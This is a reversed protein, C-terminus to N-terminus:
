KKSGFRDGWAGTGCIERVNVAFLVLSALWEPAAQFVYFLAKSGTGNLPGSYLSTTHLTMIALHYITIVLLLSIVAGILLVASRRIKPICLYAWISLLQVASIQVFALIISAYRLAQAVTAAAAYAEGGTYIVGAVVGLLIPNWSLVALVACLRRYFTRAKPDDEIDNESSSTASSNESQGVSSIAKGAEGDTQTPKQPLTTDVLVCQLSSVCSGLISIYGILFTTQWYQTISHSENQSHSHAESARLSYIIIREVVFAVTGALVLSRSSSRALRYIALISLFAYLIVFLISPAFDIQAPVGGIPAPFTHSTNSM